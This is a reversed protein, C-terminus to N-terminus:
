TRKTFKQTEEILYKEFEKVFDRLQNYLFAIFDKITICHCDKSIFTIPERFYKSDDFNFDMDDKAVLFVRNRYNEYAVNNKFYTLKSLKVIVNYIENELDIWKDGSLIKNLFHKAWVNNYLFNHSKDVGVSRTTSYKEQYYKLFDEYKTDLGHALDFGNGLILIDM